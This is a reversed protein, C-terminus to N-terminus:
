RRRRVREIANANVTVRMQRGLMELLVQVREAGSLRLDFIAEYGKLPGDIIRVPDGQELGDFTLGGVERIEQVRRRIAQVVADHVPTAVGDFQVLGIAGPVWQLASVGVEDLDAQVFLYRPFLPRITSARPNVPQVKLTPYFVELGQSKLYASVQNEKRPKSQIVYWAHVSM